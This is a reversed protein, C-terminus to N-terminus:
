ANGDLHGLGFCFRHGLGSGMVPATRLSDVSALASSSSQDDLTAIGDALRDGGVHISAPRREGRM